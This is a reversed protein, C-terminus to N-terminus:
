KRCVIKPKYTEKFEQPNFLYIMIAFFTLFMSLYVFVASYLSMFPGYYGVLPYDLALVIMWAMFHMFSLDVLFMLRTFKLQLLSVSSDVQRLISYMLLGYILFGVGFGGLIFVAVIFLSMNFYTYYDNVASTSNAANRLASGVASGIIALLLLLSMCVLMIALIIRNKKNLPADVQMSSASDYIHSWHILLFQICIGLLVFSIINLVSGATENEVNIIDRAANIVISCVAINAGICDLNTLFNKLVAVHPRVGIKTLKTVGTVWKPVVAILLFAIGFIMKCVFSLVPLMENYFPIIIRTYYDCQPGWRDSSPCYCLYPYEGRARETLHDNNSNRIVTLNLLDDFRSLDLYLRPDKSYRYKLYKDAMVDFVGYSIYNEGVDTPTDRCYEPDHKWFFPCTGNSLRDKFDSRDNRNCFYCIQHMYVHMAIMDNTSATRNPRFIQGAAYVNERTSCFYQSCTTNLQQTLNVRCMDIPNYYFAFYVYLDHQRGDYFISPFVYPMSDYCTSENACKKITLKTNRNYRSLVTSQSQVGILILGVALLLALNM